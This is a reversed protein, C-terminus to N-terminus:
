SAGFRAVAAEYRDVLFPDIDVRNSLKEGYRARYERFMEANRDLFVIDHPSMYRLAIAAIPARNAPFAANRAGPETSHPHFQGVMLGRAVCDPKLAEQVRDVIAADAEPVSPFLVVMAKEWPEGSLAEFVPIAERMRVEMEAADKGDISDDVEVHLGGDRVINPLFPCVAGERGIEPHPRCVYEKVWRWFVATSEAPPTERVESV